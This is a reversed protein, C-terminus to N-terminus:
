LTNNLVVNCFHNKSNLLKILLESDGFIQIRKHGLEKAIQCAKLLRYSEVHNNINIGLGWSFSANDARDPSIILGGIGSNGPNGKSADDFFITADPM